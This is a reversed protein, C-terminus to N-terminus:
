KADTKTAFVRRQSTLSDAVLLRILMAIPKRVTRGTLWNGVSSRQVGILHALDDNSSCGLQVMAGRLEAPRMPEHTV